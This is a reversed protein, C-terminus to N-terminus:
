PDLLTTTITGARAEVSHEYFQMSGATADVTIASADTVTAGSNPLGDVAYIIEATGLPAITVTAGAVANGSGDQVLVGVFGKNPDQDTGGVVGLLDLTQQSIILMTAGTQDQTLPRPPYLYTDLRGASTGKLYGDIALGNTPITLAYAGDAGSTTTALAAPEGRRYADITAGALPEIATGQVTQAVGSVRVPQNSQADNTGGDGGGGDGSDGGGDDGGCAALGLTLAMLARLKTSTRMTV